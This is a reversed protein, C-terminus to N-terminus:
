GMSAGVVVLPGSGCAELTATAWSEISEGLEYLNPALSAGPLADLQPAWMRRNLPFGHLLVLRPPM